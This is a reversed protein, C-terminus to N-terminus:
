SSYKLSDMKRSVVEICLGLCYGVTSPVGGYRRWLPEYSVGRFIVAFVNYLMMSESVAIVRLSFGCHTVLDCFSMVQMLPGITLPNFM